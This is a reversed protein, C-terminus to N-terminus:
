FLNKHHHAELSQGPRVVSSLDIIEIERRVIPTTPCEQKYTQPYPESTEGGGERLNCSHGEGKNFPSLHRDPTDQL